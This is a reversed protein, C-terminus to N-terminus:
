KFARLPDINKKASDKTVEEKLAYLVELVKAM